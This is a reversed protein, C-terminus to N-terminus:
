FPIDQESLHERYARVHADHDEEKRLLIPGNASDLFAHFEDHTIAVTKWLRDKYLHATIGDEAFIIRTRNQLEIEVSSTSLDAWHPLKVQM